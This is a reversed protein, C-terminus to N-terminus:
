GGRISRIYEETTMDGTFHPDSGIFEGITPLKGREQCAVKAGCWPCHLGMAGQDRMEGEYGCFPCKTPENMAEGDGGDGEYGQPEERVNCVNGQTENRRGEPPAQPNLPSIVLHM